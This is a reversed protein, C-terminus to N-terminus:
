AEASTKSQDGGGRAIVASAAAVYEDFKHSRYLAVVIALLGSIVLGLSVTWSYCLGFAVIAAMVLAMGTGGMMRVRGAYWHLDLGCTRIYVYAERADMDAQILAELTQYGFLRTVNANLKEHTLPRLFFRRGIFIFTESLIAGAVFSIALLGAAALTGLLVAAAGEAPVSPFAAVILPISGYYHGLILCIVSGFLVVGPVLFGTVSFFTPKVEM